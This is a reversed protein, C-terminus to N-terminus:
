RRIKVLRKLSCMSTMGIQFAVYSCCLNTLNGNGGCGFGSLIQIFLNLFKSWVDRSDVVFCGKIIALGLINDKWFTVVFIQGGLKSEVVFCLMNIM